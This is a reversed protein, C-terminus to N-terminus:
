WICNTHGVCLTAWCYGFYLPTQLLSLNIPPGYLSFPHSTGRFLGFEGLPKLLANRFAHRTLSTNAKAVKKTHSEKTRALTMLNRYVELPVFTIKQKWSKM